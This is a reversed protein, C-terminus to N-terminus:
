SKQTNGLKFGALKSYVAGDPQLDSKYLDVAQISGTQIPDVSNRELARAIDLSESSSSNRSVRALTLHPSFRKEELPYGLRSMENEIGRQLSFLEKPAEVGVWLVRPKQKNPFAGLGNIVMEFPSLRDAVSKIGDKLLDLQTSSVDGLFKLTLHINHVPTWRLAGAPIQPRLATIINDLQLHIGDSLSIAIFCRLMGM